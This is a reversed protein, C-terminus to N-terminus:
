WPWNRRVIYAIPKGCVQRLERRPWHRKGPLYWVAIGERDLQRQRRRPAPGRDAVREVVPHPSACQFCRADLRTPVVAHVRQAM